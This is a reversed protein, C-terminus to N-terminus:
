GRGQIEQKVRDCEKHFYQYYMSGIGKEIDRIRSLCDQKDTDKTYFDYRVKLLKLDPTRVNYQSSSILMEADLIDERANKVMAAREDPLEPRHSALLDLHISARLLFAQAKYLSMNGAIGLAEELDAIAEKHRGRQRRLDARALLPQCQYATNHAEKILRIAEDFEWAAKEWTEKGQAVYFRGKTLHHIANILLSPRRRGPLRQDHAWRDMYEIRHRIKDLSEGKDLLLVCYRSGPESHLYTDPAIRGERSERERYKGEADAFYHEASEFEGLRHCIAGLVTLCHILRELVLALSEQKDRGVDEALQAYRVAEKATEKAIRLDETRAQMLALKETGHAAPEWEKVKVDSYYAITIMRQEKSEELRGLLELCYAIRSRLGIVFATKLGDPEPGRWTDSTPFFRSLITLDWAVLGLNETIYGDNHRAVRDQYLTYADEFREALCAHHVARTALELEEETEPREKAIGKFYQFLSEHARKWEERSGNKLRDGFFQRVISHTDWNGDPKQVLLGTDRLYQEAAERGTGTLAQTGAVGDKTLASLEHEAM